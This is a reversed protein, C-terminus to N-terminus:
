SVFIDIDRSEEALWSALGGGHRYLFRVIM